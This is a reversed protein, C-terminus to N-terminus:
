PTGTANTTMGAQVAATFRPTFAQMIQPLRQGLAPMKELISQGMPSSYFQDLAVLQDRTFMQVAAVTNLRLLFPFSDNMAKDIVAVLKAREGPLMAKGAAKEQNALIVPTLSRLMSLMGDRIKPSEYYHRAAAVAAPDAKALQEDLQLDNVPLPPTEAAGASSLGVAVLIALLLPARRRTM